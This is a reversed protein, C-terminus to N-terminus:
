LWFSFLRLPFSDGIRSRSDYLTTLDSRGAPNLTTSSSLNGPNSVGFSFTDFGLVHLIM